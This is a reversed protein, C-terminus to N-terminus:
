RDILPRLKSVAEIFMAAVDFLDRGNLNLVEFAPRQSDLCAILRRGFTMQDPYKPWDQVILRVDKIPEFLMAMVRGRPGVILQWEIRPVWAALPSSAAWFVLFDGLDLYLHTVM